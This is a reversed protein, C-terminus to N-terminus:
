RILRMTIEIFLLVFFPAVLIKILEIITKM